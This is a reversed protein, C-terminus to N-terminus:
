VHDRNGTLEAEFRLELLNEEITAPLELEIAVPGAAVFDNPGISAGGDAKGLRLRAATEASVLRGLPIPPDATVGPPGNPRLRKLLAMNRWIFQPEGPVSPNVASVNLHITVRRKGKEGSISFPRFAFQQTPRVNLTRDTFELPSEDGAGGAAVDGRAFLWSPWTVLYKQIESCGARVTKEVEMMSRSGSDDKSSPRSPLPSPLRDWRKVAESLPHGLAQGRRPRTLVENIHTAFEKSIGEGAALAAITATPRGLAARHRYQWAVYLAQGYKELGFPRGGEGSVTRFGARAYIDRIREVAALEFGTKGPDVFFELPGAGIVAHDAIRRAASLYKELTADQMFQVDGFSAFGEGGVSDTATDIGLASTDISIGTLDNIAYFYEGSTLRRVTVEGPDGEHRRAYDSLSAEVWDIVQRRESEAPQPMGKPPMTQQDLVTVVREWEQFHEGTTPSEMLKQLNLGA